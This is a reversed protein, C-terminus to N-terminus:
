HKKRLLGGGQFLNIGLHNPSRKNRPLFLTLTQPLPWRGSPNHQSLADCSCGWFYVLHCQSPCKSKSGFPRTVRMQEFQLKIQIWFQVPQLTKPSELFFVKFGLDLLNFINVYIHTNKGVTCITRGWGLRFQGLRIQGCRDSKSTDCLLGSHPSYEFINSNGYM